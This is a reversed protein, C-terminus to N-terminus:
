RGVVGTRNILVDLSEDIATILRGAAAYAHQFSLMNTMEEDINVGAVSERAGDVQATIIGQIDLHRRTVSAQVGLQVIMQRYTTDPGTPSLRLQSIADANGNDLAPGGAGPAIASAAIKRPDTALVVLSSATVPGGSSGLLDTGPLGDLDYGGAHAANLSAALDAAQANLQARYGPIISTLTALQGEATGGPRITFNGAVTVVRVPDTGVDDPDTTGTVALRNSTSGAVLTTGGVLVDLVGDDATRVTAGVQDALKMVLVDRRDALENAPMGSQTAQKIAQNLDAISAAAVNVDSVLMELNERSQIWQGDLSGQSSHFGSALTELRRLLQSRAPLDQPNNGVDGWGAWMESLLSQIGTSGPERFAQEVLELTENEATLRAANAHETHGRGELFADRIRVVDDATVGAGIGSSTSFFAPVTSASIARMDARQRSYGESNVNAINQGTVDLGRRQAWLATTAANLASFTSM